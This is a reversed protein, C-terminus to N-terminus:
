AAGKRQEALADITGVLKRMIGDLSGVISTLPSEVAAVLQSLLVPRTPLEALRKMDAAGRIAREVAFVKIRPLDKGKAQEHLVKAAAAPDGHAFAVATPGKFHENMDPLGANHAAIRFLTNKAVLFKVDAERLAKRLVTIDAVNLGQYDAVFFSPHKSFLDTLEAVSTVNEQNPM